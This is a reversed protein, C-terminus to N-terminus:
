RDRARIGPRRDPTERMLVAAQADHFMLKWVNSTSLGTVLPSDIRVIVTGIDWKELVQKWDGTLNSAAMFHDVFDDGYLDARGDVFVKRQPLRWILYGGWDYSNFMPADSHRQELFTVAASPFAAAEAVPQFRIVHRQHVGSVIGLVVVTAANFLGKLPTTASNRRSLWLWGRSELWAAAHESLLPTVILVFVPIFRNSQLAIYASACVLLLGRPSTRLGTVAPAMIVALLLVLFPASVARHFDPSSWEIIHKQMSTSSLTEFPYSYLRLGNPNLMVVLASFLLTLVLPQLASHQEGSPSWVVIHNLWSGILWLSMLAIGLSYGAHLNAWLLTMPVIWWLRKRNKESGELLWLLISALLLSLSQPRVGWTPRCAFAGLLVLIGALYPQGACRIYLFFFTASTLAAFGVILGGWGTTRYLGYIFVESLWEHAVWRQGQRTFSFPDTHPVSRNEFIYQGTRLHWWFDPDTINRAALIFIGGFVIAVFVRRLDLVNQVLGHGAPASDVKLTGAEACM